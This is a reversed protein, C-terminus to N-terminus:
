KILIHEQYTSKNYSDIRIHDKNLTSKYVSLSEVYLWVEM